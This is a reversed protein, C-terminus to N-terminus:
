RVRTIVVNSADTQYAQNEGLRDVHEIDENTFGNDPNFYSFMAQRIYEEDEIEYMQPNHWVLFLREDKM